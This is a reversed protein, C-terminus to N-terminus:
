EAAAHAEAPAGRARGGPEAVCVLAGGDGVSVRVV